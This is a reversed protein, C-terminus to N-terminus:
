KSAPFQDRFATELANTLDDIAANIGAILDGNPDQASHASTDFNEFTIARRLAIIKFDRAQHKILGLHDVSYVVRQLSLKIQRATVVSHTDAMHYSEALKELDTFDKCVKDLKARIEKRAERRNHQRNIVIWGGVVLAWTVFQAIAGLTFDWNIATEQAAM